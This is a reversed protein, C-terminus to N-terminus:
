KSQAPMRTRPSVETSPSLFVPANVKFGGRSRENWELASALRDFRYAKDQINASSYVKALTRAYFADQPNQEYAEEMLNVAAATHQQKLLIWALLPKINKNQSKYELAKKVLFETDEQRKGEEYWIGALLAYMEGNEPNLKEVTRIQQNFGDFQNLRYYSFAANLRLEESFPFKQIGNTLVKVAATYKQDQILLDSYTKFIALQDQRQEYAKQMIQLAKAPRDKRVEELALQARAEGFEEDSYTIQEFLSFAKKRSGGDLYITALNFKAESSESYELIKQYDKQANVRDGKAFYAQAIRLDLKLPEDYYDSNKIKKYEVLARDYLGAQYAYDALSWSVERDFDQTQAYRDLVDAAKIYYYNGASWKSYHMVIQRDRPNADYAAQLLREYQYPQNMAQYINAKEFYIKAKNEPKISIDDLVDLAEPFQKEFKYIEVLAWKAPDHQPKLNLIHQYAERAKPYVRTEVYLEAVSELTFLDAPKQELVQNYEVLALHPKLTQRYVQALGLRADLSNPNHLLSLRYNEIASDFAGEQSYSEAMQRYYESRSLVDTGFDTSRTTIPKTPVTYFGACSGLWLLSLILLSNKVKM